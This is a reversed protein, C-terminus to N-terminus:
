KDLHADFFGTVAGWKEARDAKENLFEHRSGKFLTLTVEQMQAKERFFDFLKKVGKGMDGVPDDEGSALLLPLRKPLAAIYERTYLSRLGRFFDAYFRYSCTFSCFPDAHYAANNEADCSLWERDAFKRAYAGFSLSEILKAPKREGGFLCVTNAVLSGFYVEFDKKHNSGAIVAGSLKEGFRALAAQALFSGYSFGLLFYPLGAYKERFWDCIMGEDAFRVSDLDILIARKIRRGGSDSMGRWNTFPKAILDYAPITTITNDWNRVRVTTLAIDTVEGDANAGPVVIWDGIRIMGNGSLTVGATLGLISDKFVLMLVASLATMGSLIYTPDRGSLTAVVAVAAFLYGLLTLVQFIGKQPSASVGRRWNGVLYAVNLASAFVNACIFYFYAKNLLLLGTRLPRGEPFLTGVLLGMVILPVVQLARPALRSNLVISWFGALRGGRLLIGRLWRYLFKVVWYSAWTGAFVLALRVLVRLLPSPISNLAHQVGLLADILAQWM